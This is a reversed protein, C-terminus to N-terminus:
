LDELGVGRCCAPIMRNIFNGFLYWFKDLLLGIGISGCNLLLLILGLM